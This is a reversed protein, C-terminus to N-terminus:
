EPKRRRWLRPRGRDRKRREKESKRREHAEGEKKEIERLLREINSRDELLETLVDYSRLDLFSKVIPNLFVLAQSGIFSFPKASELVFIAPAALGRVVVEDAIKEILQRQEEETVEGDRRGAAESWFPGDATM